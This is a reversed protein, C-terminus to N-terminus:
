KEGGEVDTGLADAIAQVHDCPWIVSQVVSVSEMAYPTVREAQDVCGGCVKRPTTSCDDPDDHECVEAACDGVIFDMTTPRHLDLVARLAAEMRPVDTRASTIVEAAELEAETLDLEEDEAIKDATTFEQARLADDAMTQALRRVNDDSM